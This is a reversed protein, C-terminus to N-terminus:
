TENKVKGRSFTVFVVFCKKKKKTICLKNAVRTERKKKQKICLKNAVMKEKALLSVTHFYTLQKLYISLFLGDLVISASRSIIKTSQQQLEGPVSTADEPNGLEGLFLHWLKQGMKM